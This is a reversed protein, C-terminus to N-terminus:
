TEWRQEGRPETSRLPSEPSKTNSQVFGSKCACTPMIFRYRDVRGGPGGGTVACVVEVPEGESGSGLSPGTCVRWWGPPRLRGAPLATCTSPMRSGSDLAPQEACHSSRVFAPSLRGPLLAPEARRESGKTLDSRGCPQPPAAKGLIVESHLGFGM